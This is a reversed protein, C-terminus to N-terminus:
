RKDVFKIAVAVGGGLDPMEERQLRTLVKELLSDSYMPRKQPLKAYPANMLPHDITPNHLGLAERLRLWALITAPFRVLFYRNGFELFQQPRTRHTYYDCLWVLHDAFPTLDPDRWYDFLVNLVPEGFCQNKAFINKPDLQVHRGKGWNSFPMDWFDFCIRILWHYLTQNSKGQVCEMMRKEYISRITEAVIRAEDLWGLTLCDALIEVPKDLFTILWTGMAQCEIRWGWYRYATSREYEPLWNSEPKGAYILAGPIEGVSTHTRLVDGVVYGLPGSRMKTKDLIDKFPNGGDAYVRLNHDSEQLDGARYEAYSLAAKLLAKESKWGKYTGLPQVTPKQDSPQEPALELEPVNSACVAASRCRQALYALVHVAHAEIAEDATHVAKIRSKLNASGSSEFVSVIFQKHADSADLSFDESGEEHEYEGFEDASLESLLRTLLVLEAKSLRNLPLAINGRPTRGRRALQSCRAALLQMLRYDHVFLENGIEIIEANETAVSEDKDDFLNAANIIARNDDNQELFYDTCTHELHRDAADSLFDSIIALELQGLAANTVRKDQSSLLSAEATPEATNDMGILRYGKGIKEKILKDREKIAVAPDAFTKTNEQGSTGIRGFRVTLDCGVIGVEWFKNSKGDSFELRQM